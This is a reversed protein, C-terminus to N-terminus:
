NEKVFFKKFAMSDARVRLSDRTRSPHFKYENDKLISVWAKRGYKIIGVKLYGDEEASFKTNRGPKTTILNVVEKKVVIDDNPITKCPLVFSTNIHSADIAKTVRLDTASDDDYESSSTSSQNSWENSNTDFTNGSRSSEGQEFLSKSKNLVSKDFQKDVDAIDKFVNMIDNDAGVRALKTMKDMCRKGEVAVRRSQKKKYYIQAVKSSHKQDESIIQQEERTLRDSSETEVIQRYRTPNIYKGIAQRVLMIMATTLSQFQTGNTSLLLYECKPNLQPRIYDIYFGLVLMVDDTIILTDFIYTASTKFETQDIIGDNGKAKQIMGVTLYQYSMPRSCKVRLFLLTTIFRTCFVLDNKGLITDKSKATDVFTRFAKIHFPIVKEMEEITAWSDKAILIELDLNRNCELNKKKRLNEKARRLYVETVTLCRLTNDPLGNAKRFDVMDGIAKVYNLSASSSIKWENELTQLFAIFISASSLCCDVFEYTLDIDSENNGLAEMFFKMARKGIQQAEKRSKGGGCSTCLWLIFDRGIGEELSFAPKKSTCVKKRPPQNMEIEERKVEPQEDFYYYWSHKNDIHKRLGRSSKFESHLCLKVPCVYMDNGNKRLFLKRKGHASGEVAKWNVFLSRSREIAMAM